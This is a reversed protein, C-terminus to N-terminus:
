HNITMIILGIINILIFILYNLNMSKLFHKKSKVGTINEVANEAYHAQPNLAGMDMTDVNFFNMIFLAASIFTFVSFFLELDGNLSRYFFFGEIALLIILGRFRKM